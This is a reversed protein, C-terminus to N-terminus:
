APGGLYGPNDVRLKAEVSATVLRKVEALRSDERGTRIAEALGADDAYGLQALRDRHESTDVAGHELEREVIALANIAVRTHFRMAGDLEDIVKDALFERVATVLEAATPVDYLTEPATM